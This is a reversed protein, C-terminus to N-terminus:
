SGTEVHVLVFSNSLDQEECFDISELMSPNRSVFASAIAATNGNVADSILVTVVPRPLLERLDVSRFM